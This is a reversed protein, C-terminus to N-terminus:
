WSAICQLLALNKKCAFFHELYKARNPLEQLIQSTQVIQSHIKQAFKSCVSWQTIHRGLSMCSNRIYERRHNTHAQRNFSFCFFEGRLNGEKNCCGPLLSFVYHPIKLKSIPKADIASRDLAHDIIATTRILIKQNGTGSRHYLFKMSYLFVTVSNHNISNTLQNYTM